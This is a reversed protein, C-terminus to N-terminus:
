VETLSADAVKQSRSAINMNGDGDIQFDLAKVCIPM